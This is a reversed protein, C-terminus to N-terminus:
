SAEWEVDHGFTAVHACRPCLDGAMLSPGEMQWGRKTAFAALHKLIRREAIAGHRTHPPALRRLAKGCDDCIVDASHIIKM